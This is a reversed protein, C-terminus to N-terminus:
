KDETKKAAPKKAAPKKAATKTESAKAAPKKAPAKKAPTAKTDKKEAPAKAATKTAAKKAAPKEETIKAAAKVIDVAKTSKITSSIDNEGIAKKVVDVELGYQKAMKEYEADVDSPEIEIKELEIIKDLALKLKVQNEARERLSDRFAERTMGTYKLYTDLDMGQSQMRYSFENINDDIEREIMVPPIEAKVLKSLQDFLQDEVEHEAQELKSDAIQKKLDNRLEEVTDFESVDKAFEDDVDPLEKQKIGNVKIKFSADKGALEETYEEPFKVNIDFEEGIKHGKLQDEFGPIFSNSGVTLEYNEAKGGEFPKGDVSGEFDIVAIDSDKIARDSADVLRAGRERMQNIRTEVEEDNVDLSSKTAKLGKYEGIEVEPKVTVKLTFHVGDKGIEPVNVDFPSDVIEIGAEKVAEEVAEPYLIEFADEYFVEPGYYQEIMHKPAKGKRFGPLQIKNKQKNYAKNVAEEFKDGAVAIELEYVNTDVKESSKLSM